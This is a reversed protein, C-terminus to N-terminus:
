LGRLMEVAAQSAFGPWQHGGPHVCYTAPFGAACGDHLECPAPMAAKRTTMCGNRTRYFEDAAPAGSFAGDGRGIIYTVPKRDPCRGMPDLGCAAAVVGAIEDKMTCALRSAFWCGSSFGTIVVKKPDVCYQRGLHAILARLLALNEEPRDRNPVEWGSGGYSKPYVVIGLNAGAVDRNLNGQGEIGNGRGHLYFVVPYPKNQDYGTPLVVRYPTSAAGATITFM